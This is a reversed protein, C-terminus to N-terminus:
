VAGALVRRRLLLGGLALLVAGSGALIGAHLLVDRLGGNELLLAQYGRTGWYFLSAPAITQVVKPLSDLPVFSGGSFALLLYIVSGVTSGQRESRALGYVASALGTVAAIIALSLVAFGAFNVGHGAAFGAVAALVLLGLVAVVAATLAKAAVVTGAGVPGALVRRLTGRAGEGLLDRMVMDGLTFLAFVALGPLVILFVSITQSAGTAAPQSGAKELQVPKLTIAPPFLYKGSRSLLQNIAVSIAAVTQDSPSQDANLLPRIEDLPKRLVYSASSLGDALVQTILEAVEPLISQSPNRVLELETARGDLIAETFGPPLRLLASFEEEELKALADEGAKEVEFFEAAQQSAFAQAVLSGVLGGDQDDLLLRVKPAKAEGGGFALALIGGLLLPLSLVLLTSLPSRLRRQLDKRVLLFIQRGM